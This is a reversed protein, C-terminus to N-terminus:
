TLRDQIRIAEKGPKLFGGEVVIGPFMSEEGEEPARIARYAGFQGTCGRLATGLYLPAVGQTNQGLDDFIKVLVTVRPNGLGLKDAGVPPHDIKQAKVETKDIKISVFSGQFDIL